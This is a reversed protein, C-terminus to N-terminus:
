EVSRIFSLSLHTDDTALEIEERLNNIDKIKGKGDWSHYTGWDTVAWLQYGNLILGSSNYIFKIKEWGHKATIRLRQIDLKHSELHKLYFEQLCIMDTEFNVWVYRLESGITFARRYPAHQRSERCVHMVPPCPTPTVVHVKEVAESLNTKWRVHVLRPHAALSWIHARLEQPLRPFPHFTSM